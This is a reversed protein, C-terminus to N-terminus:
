PKAWITGAPFNAAGPDTASVLVPAMYADTGPGQWVMNRIPATPNEIRIGNRLYLTGGHSAGDVIVATDTIQLYATGLAGTSANRQRMVASTSGGHFYGEQAVFGSPAFAANLSPTGLGIGGITGRAANLVSSAGGSLTGSLTINGATVRGTGADINRNGTTIATATTAGSFLLGPMTTTVPLELPCNSVLSMDNTTLKAACVGTKITVGTSDVKFVSGMVSMPNDLIVETPTLTVGKGGAERHSLAVAQTDDKTSTLNLLQLVPIWASRMRSFVELRDTEENYTVRGNGPTSGIEGSRDASNAYRLVIREQIWTADEDRWYDVFNEWDAQGYPAPLVAM